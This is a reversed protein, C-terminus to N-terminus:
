NTVQKQLTSIKTKWNIKFFFKMRKKIGKLQRTLSATTAELQKIRLSIVANGFFNRINPQNGLGIRSAM